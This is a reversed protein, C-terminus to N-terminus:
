LGGLLHEAPVDILRHAASLYLRTSDESAHGLSAKVLELAASLHDVLYDCRRAPALNRAVAGHYIALLYHVAYTHRTDHIRFGAPFTPELHTRTFDRAGEIVTSLSDYALPVGTYENLFLVPTSGNPEVLRRRADADLRAWPHPRARSDPRAPDIYTVTVDDATLIHLPRAPRHRSNATIESRRGDIYGWVAPLYHTFVIADGGADGKTIHDAVRMVTFDRHPTPEPIEYTTVNSLNNRRLGSACALSLVAHDRDAGLYAQQRGNSDIRLAGQLLLQTFHPDLPIGRSGTHTRRPRYGRIGTGTFGSWNTDVLDFPPTHQYQRHLHEYLRKISSRARRWSDSSIVTSPDIGKDTHGYQRARYYAAFDDETATLIPDRHDTFPPRQRDNLLFRLWDALDDAIRAATSQNPQSRCHHSLFYSTTPHIRGNVSLWPAIIRDRRPALPETGLAAAVVSPDYATIPRHVRVTTVPHAAPQVHPHHGPALQGPRNSGAEAHGRIPDERQRERV